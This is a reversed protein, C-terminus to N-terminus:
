NRLRDLAPIVLPDTPLPASFVKRLVPPARRILARISKPAWDGFVEVNDDKVYLHDKWREPRRKRIVLFRTTMTIRWLGTYVTSKRRNRPDRFDRYEPTSIPILEQERVKVRGEGWFGRIVTEGETEGERGTESITRFITKTNPDPNTLIKTGDIVRHDELLWMGEVELLGESKRSRCVGNGNEDRGFEIEKKQLIARRLHAGGRPGRQFADMDFSGGDFNTCGRLFHLIDDEKEFREFHMDFM